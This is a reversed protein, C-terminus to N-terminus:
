AYLREERDCHFRISDGAEQNNLELLEPVAMRIRVILADLSGDEMVLGIIDDSTAVWVSADPDWELNVNYQM